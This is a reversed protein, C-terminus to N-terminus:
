FYFFDYHYDNLSNLNKELKAFRKGQIELNVLDPEFKRLDNIRCDRMAQRVLTQMEDRLDGIAKQLKKKLFNSEM